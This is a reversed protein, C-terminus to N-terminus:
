VPLPGSFDRVFDIQRQARAHELLTRGIARIQPELRSVMRPTFGKNVLRRLRTHDPPDTEIMWTVEPAPNLDGISQALWKASSFRQPNRLAFDVDRYRSVAWCQLPALWAVPNHRRLEAYYPYPNAQVEPSLPNYEM